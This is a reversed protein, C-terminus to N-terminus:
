RGGQRTRPSPDPPAPSTSVSELATVLWPKPLVFTVARGPAQQADDIWVEGSTPVELDTSTRIRRAGLDIAVVPCLRADVSERATVEDLVQFPRPFPQGAERAQRMADHIFELGSRIFEKDFAMLEAMLGRTLGPQYVEAAVLLEGLDRPGMSCAAVLRMATPVGGLFSITQESDSITLRVIEAHRM